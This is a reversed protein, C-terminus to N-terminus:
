YGTRRIRTSYVSRRYTPYARQRPDLYDREVVYERYSESQYQTIHEYPDKAAPWDNRALFVAPCSSPKAFIFNPNRTSQYGNGAFAFDRTNNTTSNCTYSNCGTLTSITIAAAAIIVALRLMVSANPLQISLYRPMVILETAVPQHLRWFSM